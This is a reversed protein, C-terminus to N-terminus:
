NNKLTPMLNFSIENIKQINHEKTVNSMKTNHLDAQLSEWDKRYERIVDLLEEHCLNGFEELFEEEAQEAEYKDRAGSMEYAALLITYEDLLRAEEAELDDDENVNENM